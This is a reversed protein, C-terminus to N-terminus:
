ISHTGPITAKMGLFILGIIKKRKKSEKNSGSLNPYKLFYILARAWKGAHMQTELFAKM